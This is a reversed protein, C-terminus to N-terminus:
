FDEELMRVIDRALYRIAETEAARLDDGLSPVIEGEAELQSSKIVDGTRRDTLRVDVTLTVRTLEPEQAADEALVRQRVELLTGTLVVEADDKSTLRLGPSSLIEDVIRESLQFQLDRYFTENDFYAVFVEDRDAPYLDGRQLAVCGAALAAALAV